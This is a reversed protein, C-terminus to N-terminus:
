RQRLADDRDRARARVVAKAAISSSPGKGWDVRALLGERDLKRVLLLGIDSWRPPDVTQRGPIQRALGCLGRPRGQRDAPSSCKDVRWQSALTPPLLKGLTQGQSANALIALLRGMMREPAHVLIALLGGMTQRQSAHAFIALLLEGPTQRRQRGPRGVIGGDDWPPGPQWGRM